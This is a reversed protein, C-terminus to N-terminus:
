NNWKENLSMIDNKIGNYTFTLPLLTETGFVLSFPTHKTTVKYATRYSWLTAYLKTYWDTRNANVINPLTIKIVKNRNEAQGNAQVYYTTSKRHLVM